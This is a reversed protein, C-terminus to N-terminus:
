LPIKEGNSCEYSMTINDFGTVSSHNPCEIIEVPSYTIKTGNDAIYSYEKEYKSSFHWIENVMTETPEYTIYAIVGLWFTFALGAIISLELIEKM